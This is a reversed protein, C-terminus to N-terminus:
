RTASWSPRVDHSAGGPRDATWTPKKAAAPPPTSKAESQAAPSPDNRVSTNPTSTAVVAPIPESSARWGGTARDSEPPLNAPKNPQATAWTGETMPAPVPTAIAPAESPAIDAPKAIPEEYSTAVVSEESPWIKDTRSSFMGPRSLDIKAHTLMKGGSTPVLRVWLENADVAKVDAPVEVHFRFTPESTDNVLAARVEDASFDWRSLKQQQGKGNSAVLMLSLTGDFQSGHGTQDFPEIDVTLRPGGGAENAVVEGTLLIDPSTNSKHTPDASSRGAALAAEGNPQNSRNIPEYYSAPLVERPEPPIENNASGGQKLPPVEPV